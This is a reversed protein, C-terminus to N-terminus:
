CLGWISREVGTLYVPFDSKTERSMLKILTAINTVKVYTSVRRADQISGGQKESDRMQM